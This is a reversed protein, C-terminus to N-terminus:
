ASRGDSGEEPKTAKEVWWVCVGNHKQTQKRLVYDGHFRGVQGRMLAGLQKPTPQRGRDNTIFTGGWPDHGAKDYSYDLDGSKRVTSATVRDDGFKERWTALFSRWDADDGDNDDRTAEANGLFGQIGHHILFGGVGQAWGTFQRMTLGDARPAGARTWDVVLVLLCWLLHQQNEPKTIWESLDGLAFKAREEPRPMKPDIRVWVSRSAMDGGVALNNGTCMWLRDNPLSAVKNGGLLRDSWVNSTLLNALKASRVIGGEAINDFIMTGEVTTLASTITKGLEEENDTWSFVRQGYLLGPGSTLITKGSGPMTATVVGFPTLVRLYRRLVPTVLLGVYNARDALNVWPFDHLFKGLLFTRAEEVQEPTPADPVYPLTITPALYLGTREDYGATQLLTGDGRLVPAGIIGRLPPVGPWKKAALVASLATQPPTVETEGENKERVVVKYTYTHTALALALVPATVMTSTVPLPMDQDGADANATGSVEEVLTLRGDSVYMDPLGGNNIEENLVRITEPVSGIEIRHRHTDYRGDLKEGGAHTAQAQADQQRREFESEWAGVAARRAKEAAIAKALAEQFAAELADKRVERTKTLHDLHGRLEANLFEESIWPLAQEVNEGIGLWHDADHRGFQPNRAAKRMEAAFIQARKATVRDGTRAASDELALSAKIAAKSVARASEEVTASEADDWTRAPHDHPVLTRVRATRRVDAEAAAIWAQQTDGGLLRRIEEEDYGRDRLQREDDPGANFVSAGTTTTM